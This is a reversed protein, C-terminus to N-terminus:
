RFFGHATLWRLTRQSLRIQVYSMCMVILLGWVHPNGGYMKEWHDYTPLICQVFAERMILDSSSAPPNERLTIDVVEYRTAPNGDHAARERLEVLAYKKRFDFPPAFAVLAQLASQFTFTHARAFDEVLLAREQSDRVAVPLTSMDVRAVFDRAEQKKKCFV